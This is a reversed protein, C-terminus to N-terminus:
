SRASGYVNTHLFAGQCEGAAVRQPFVINQEPVIQKNHVSHYSGLGQGQLSRASIDCRNVISMLAGPEDMRRSMAILHSPTGHKVFSDIAAGRNLSVVGPSALSCGHIPAPFRGRALSANPLPSSSIFPSSELVFPDTGIAVRSSGAPQERPFIGPTYAASGLTSSSGASQARPATDPQTPWDTTDDLFRVALYARDHQRGNLTKVAHVADRTDYFEIIFIQIHRNLLLGCFVQDQVKGQHGVQQLRQLDGM